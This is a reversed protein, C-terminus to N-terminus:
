YEKLLNKLQMKAKKNKMKVKLMNMESKSFGDSKKAVKKMKPKKYKFM